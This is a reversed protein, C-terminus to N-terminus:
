LNTIQNRVIAKDVTTQEFLGQKMQFVPENDEFFGYMGCANGVFMLINGCDALYERLAGMNDEKLAFVMKAKHYELEVLMGKFDAWQEWPEKGLKTNINLQKQMEKAFNLVKPNLDINDSLEFENNM